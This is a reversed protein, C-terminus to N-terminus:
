VAHFPHDEHKYSKMMHEHIREGNNRRKTKNKKRAETKLLKQDPAISLQNSPAQNTLLAVFLNRNISASASQSIIRRICFQTM